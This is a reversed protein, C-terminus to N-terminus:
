LQVHLILIADTPDQAIDVIRNLVVFRLLRSFRIILNPIIPLIRIHRSISSHIAAQRLIQDLEKQIGQCDKHAIDQLLLPAYRHREPPKETLLSVHM